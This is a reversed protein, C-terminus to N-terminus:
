WVETVPKRGRRRRVVVVLGLGALLFAVLGAIAAAPPGGGPLPTWWLTGAIAGRRGDIRIPITYDDVKQRKSTDTVQPPVGKGMWHMRHDHWQFRGGEDVTQWAPPAGTRVAPPVTVAAYRDQNLYYAPSNRNVQVLGSPLMRAYLDGSYGYIVVTKGSTNRLEFRDDRNLVQISVGGIRPTVARVISEMHPNGQHAQATASAALAAVLGTVVCLRRV